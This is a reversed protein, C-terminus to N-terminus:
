FVSGLVRLFRSFSFFCRSFDHLKERTEFRHVKKRHSKLTKKLSEVM